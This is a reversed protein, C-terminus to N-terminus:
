EKENQTISKFDHEWLYDHALVGNLLFGFVRVGVGGGVLVVLSVNINIIIVSM